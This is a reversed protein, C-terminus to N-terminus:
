FIWFLLIREKSISKKTYGGLFLSVMIPWHCVLGMRGGWGGGGQFAVWLPRMIVTHYIGMHIM